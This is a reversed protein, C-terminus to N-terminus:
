GTLVGVLEARTLGPLPPAPAVTELKGRVAPDSLAEHPRATMTAISMAARFLDPDNSARAALQKAAHWSPDSTAYPVGAVQAEMERARHRTFRLSDRYLPEVTSETAERWRHVLEVDSRLDVERVLDRLAIAHLLGISAGRGLSPNSCAWSDGVALLGTAVPAGDPWFDRHVDHIAAMVDIGTIPEGELWHAIMPYSKVVRTWTEPDRAARSLPDRGTTVIVVGWTGNDGPATLTSLSDHHQLPPGVTPPMAGDPSRFHRSYYVFGTDERREVPVRAGIAALLAPMPTRRGSADIVVDARLEDGSETLVGIVHPVGNLRAAGTLLGRVALGRLVEVGPQQEVLRALTAEVMPRRGTISEFREDGPRWGGTMSEPLDRLRNFRYAGDAELAPNVDPLEADLLQRFRPLFAHLLQFQNVGRREWCDWPDAGRRPPAAPDRELLRVHHGDRALLLATCLGVVGGGVVIV